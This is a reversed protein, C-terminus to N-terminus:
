AADGGDDGPLARLERTFRGLIADRETWHLGDLARELMDAMRRGLEAASEAASAAASSTIASKAVEALHRREAQYLQVWMNVRAGSETTVEGDGAARVTRKREGWVLEAPELEAVRDSLWLVHGLTRDLEALLAREPTTRVPLGFAQVAREALVRRAHVEHNPMAGGHLKCAGIGAHGTGWGAPLGCRGGTRARAGCRDCSAHKRTRTM